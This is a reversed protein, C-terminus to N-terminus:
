DINDYFAHHGIIVTPRKGKSWYPHSDLTHYHTAHHTQLLTQSAGWADNAVRWTKDSVMSLREKAILRDNWCSFQKPRMVVENVGIHAKLARNRIVEGVAEMGAYGEGGAELVLTQVALSPEAHAVGWGLSFLCGILIVKFLSRM